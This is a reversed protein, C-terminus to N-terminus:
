SFVHSVTAESIGFRCALDYNGLNLRLKMLTLTFCQFHTLKAVPSEHIAVSVIEFLALLVTFSGFGTYFRCMKDDNRLDEQEPHAKAHRTRLESLEELRKRYDDEVSLLHSATLDTQTGSCTKNPKYEVPELDNPQDANCKTNGVAENRVKAEKRRKSAIYRNM